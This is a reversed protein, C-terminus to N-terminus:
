GVDVIIQSKVKWKDGNSVTQQTPVGGGYGCLCCYLKNYTNVANYLFVGEGKLEEPQEIIKLTARVGSTEGFLNMERVDAKLQNPYNTFGGTGVDYQQYNGDDVYTDTVQLASATDNGRLVCFMPMYSNGLTLDAKFEVTQGIYLGDANFLWERGHVGVLTEHDSPDYMNSTMFIQLTEFETISTYDTIDVPKGDLVFLLSGDIISEDGHTTGGIFDDRGVIQIAMETEGLQTIHFRYTLADNVADIQVLRWVDGLSTANETHGFIYNVYGDKAPIYIDICETMSSYDITRTSYKCKAKKPLKSRLEKVVPSGIIWTYGDLPYIGDETYVDIDSVQERYAYGNNVAFPFLGIIFTCDYTKSSQMYAYLGGCTSADMTFRATNNQTVFANGSVKGRSMVSPYITGATVKQSVTYLHVPLPLTMGMLETLKKKDGDVFSYNFDDSPKGSITVTTGDVTFTVGNVTFTGQKFGFLEAVNYTGSIVKNNESADSIEFNGKIVDPLEVTVKDFIYSEDLAISSNFDSKVSSIEDGTKKADAAAGSVLLTDDVQPVTYTDSLGPFKISKLPKNAM